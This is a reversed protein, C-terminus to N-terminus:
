KKWNKEVWQLAMKQLEPMDYYVKKVAKKVQLYSMKTYNTGYKVAKRWRKTIIKHLDKTLPISLFDDVKCKKFLKYFRKEIIHHVEVNKVGKFIKRLDKYKGTILYKTNKLDNVKSAIKIVAKGGKSVLKSGKSVYSGPVFPIFTAAVDWVLYGLNLWSPNTVLDYISWGIGVIDVVTEFADGELDVRICPANGCYAFLNYGIINGTENACEVADANIFRCISADYYRSQLYYYGTEADYYYSRYRFPNVEAIALQKANDVEATEIALLNGWEDYKYTAILNGSADTIGCVDGMQNTIYYYQTGNYTFGALAGNSDYQFLMTTTGDTQSLIVGDETNYYTTVNNVTKSTRIGNEDYTYKYENTGETIETLIRGREWEFTRDGYTEVNGSKDYTLTKDDVQVLLDKWGESNYTFTKTETPTATDTIEDETYAYKKKSLINGRDDYNYVTTYGNDFNSNVRTLQSHKDYFYDWETNDYSHTTIRDEEDYTNIFNLDGDFYKKETIRDEEDYKYSVQIKETDNYLISDSAVRDKGEDMTTEFSTNYDTFIYKKSKEGSEKTYSDGFHTEAVIIPTDETADASQEQEEYSYLLTNDSTRYVQVQSNDGYVYKLGTNNDKKQKLNGTEEDYTYSVSAVAEGNEYQGLVEWDENYTYRIVDGNAYTESTLVHNNNEDYTYAVATVGNIEAKKIEGHDTYYFHYIDFIEEIKNGKNNYVYTTTKGLRDTESTLLGTEANYVYTHGVTSDDYTNTAPDRVLGDKTEDYDEPGIEQIVRGLNDYITRTYDGNENALLVRGAADYTYATGEEGTTTLVNGLKDYTYTTESVEPEGTTTKTSTVKTQNGYADYEYEITEANSEAKILLGDSYTYSITDFCTLTEDYLEPLEGDYDEKLTASLVIEDLDNYVYYTSGESTSERVLRDKKDYTYLTEEDDTVVSTLNGRKDYTYTTIVGDTTATLLRYYSDYTYETTNGEEDTESVVLFADNYTTSTTQDIADTTTITNKEKNYTFTLTAGTLYQYQKVRGEEDYIIEKDISKTLVGDTYEYQGLIVGAQDKVETLLGDGNYSYPMIGDAPDTIKTVKGTDDLTLTYTRKEEGEAGNSIAIAESSRSITIAHGYRNEIKVLKGATDYHYTQKDIDITYGANEALVMLEYGNIENLYTTDNVKVFTLESGDTLIVKKVYDNTGDVTKVCSDTSLFWEGDVNNYSQVFELSVGKYAFTFPTNSESYAGVYTGTSTFEGYKAGSPVYTTSVEANKIRAYIVTDQHAPIAFPVKYDKWEGDTGIKYQMGVGANLVPNYLGILDGDRYFEPQVFDITTYAANGAEDRVLIIISNPPNDPVDYTNETTWSKGNDYSYELSESENDSAEVRVYKTSDELLEKSQIVPAIKDINTIAIKGLYIVKDNADKIFVHVEQNASFSKQNSEQWEGPESETSSFSYAQESLGAELEEAGEVSIIVDENTPAEESATITINAYTEKDITDITVVTSESVNGAVDRAYVYVTGNEDFEKSTEEQWDYVEAETTFSYELTQNQTDESVVSLKVYETTYTDPTKSVTPANPAIKDVKDVIVVYPQSINGVNDKTYIYITANDTYTKENETQWEYVGETESFSYAATGSLSDENTISITFAQNTWETPIGSVVGIGPAEKDIRIFECGIPRINGVDDRVHVYVNGPNEFTKSPSEQWNYVGPADSFSYPKDALGAGNTNDTANEITLTVNDTTWTGEALSSTYTAVPAATDNEYSIVTYPRYASVTNDKTAFARWYYTDGGEYASRYMLGYNVKTGDVWAKVASAINFKYIYVSDKSDTSAGSLNRQPLTISTDREPKTEWNTAGETWSGTMMYPRIYFNGTNESTERQWIYASNIAAGKKIASPIKFYVLSRADGHLDSHGIGMTIRSGYVTTSRESSVWTDKSNSINSTTPDIIVPYVTSDSNLWEEDVTVTLIYTHEAISELTYECEGYHEDDYGVVYVSDYAFPLAFTQVNKNTTDNILSITGDENKVASCNEASLEFSFSNKGINENLVIDDKVGNLQPYFRLNTGEGYLNPYEFVEFYDSLYQAIGERGQVTYLTRPRLSYAGGDFEVKLCKDSNTSFHIRYDNQGNTYDFGEEEMEEDNQEEVTIDKTKLNGNEDVYSIPESFLYITNSGDENVLDIVHSDSKMVDTSIGIADETDVIDAAYASLVSDFSFKDRLYSGSMDVALTTGVGIVIALIISVMKKFRKKRM